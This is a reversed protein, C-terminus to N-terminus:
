NKDPRIEFLYVGGAADGAGLRNGSSLAVCWIPAEAFFTGRCSGTGLDWVKITQDRSSSVLTGGDGSLAVSEVESAHGELARCAGTGLDWVKITKDKSGSVLTRGDGDLAVSVVTDAHRELTRSAGMGLDWVKITRDASGSVLTRGDGSLAVSMVTGKHGELTRCTGTGLDWVEIPNYWGASVLTRGDGSLAVSYVAGAHGELTRCAGTGLDWVKITNDSSGSVLTGGDGSLAVSHVSNAHGELTCFKSDAQTLAPWLPVICGLTPRLQARLEALGPEEVAMLRAYLQSSLQVPSGSIVHSSQNLAREVLRHPESPQALRYHAILVSLGARELVAEMWPLDFLLNRAEQRRGAEALHHPLWEVFYREKRGTHWGDCCTGRYAALFEHQREKLGDEGLEARLFDLQLDHLSVGDTGQTVLSLDALAATTDRVERAEIGWLVELPAEPVAVDEPFVAFDFYRRRLVPDLDALSIDFAAKLSPYAYSPVEGAIKKIRAQRLDELMDAWYADNRRRLKAGVMALALPLGACEAAIAAATEPLEVAPKGVQEGLLALSQEPALTGLQYEQAGLAAAVNLKRTTFLLRYRPANEARFYEVDRAQWVDDLVVLVAREQIISRFRRLSSDLDDFGEPGAGMVAALKRLREAMNGPERGLTVWAVGDPFADAILPDKHCLAASLVTKGIGGMGHLATVAVHRSGGDALLLNRLEERQRPRDVFSLPLNPVSVATQRFRDPLTAGEGSHISTVLATFSSEYGSALSFDVYQRTELHLPRDADVQVLVPIVCIKRRLARLQEARCIDSRFSARSLLALVVQSDNLNQEIERTWSDGGRLRSTDRWVTFGRAALDRELAEALPTSDAHAYSIFIRGLAQGAAKAKSRSSFWWM